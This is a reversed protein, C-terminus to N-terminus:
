ANRSARAWARSRRRLLAEDLCLRYAWALFSHNGRGNHLGSRIGLLAQALAQQTEPDDLLIRHIGSTFLRLYPQVLAPFAAQNGALIEAILHAEGPADPLRKETALGPALLGTNLM